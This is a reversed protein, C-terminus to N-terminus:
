IPFCDSFILLAIVFGDLLVTRFGGDIGWISIQRRLLGTLMREPLAVQRHIGSTSESM